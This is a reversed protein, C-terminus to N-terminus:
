LFMGESPEVAERTDGDTDADADAVSEPLKMEEGNLELSSRYHTALNCDLKDLAEILANVHSRKKIIVVENEKIALVFEPDPDSIVYEKLEKQSRVLHKIQHIGEEIGYSLESCTMDSIATTSM